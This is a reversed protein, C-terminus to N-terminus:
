SGQKATDLLQGALQRMDDVLIDPPHTVGCARIGANRATLVDVASDGVMLTKEPAAGSEALLRQVGMPHPKKQDFSNGGYVRFFHGGLGLGKVLDRSFLVPKNTLVAMKIGADRFRDLSERVGPYLYTNDLMHERYYTLFRALARQVEEESAEDGMARRLLAPAGDGVYSYIVENDLPPRGQEALAANV